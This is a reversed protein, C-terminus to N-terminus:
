KTYYNKWRFLIERKNPAYEVLKFDVYHRLGCGCCEHIYNKRRPRVWKNEELYDLEIDKSM